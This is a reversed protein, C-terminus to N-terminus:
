IERKKDTNKTVFLIRNGQCPCFPCDSFFNRVTPEEHIFNLKNAFFLYSVFALMLPPPFTLIKLTIKFNDQSSIPLLSLKYKSFKTASSRGFGGVKARLVLHSRGSATPSRNDREM